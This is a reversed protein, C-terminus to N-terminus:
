DYLTFVNHHLNDSVFSRDHTCMPLIAIAEIIPADPDETIVTVEYCLPQNYPNNNAYQNDIRKRTYVIADYNMKLSSPPDYYVNRSELLEEFKAQWKQSNQELRRQDM